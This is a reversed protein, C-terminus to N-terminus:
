EPSTKRGAELLHMEMEEILLDMDKTRSPDIEYAGIVQPISRIQTLIKGKIFGDLPEQAM